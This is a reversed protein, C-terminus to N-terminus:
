NKILIEINVFYINYIYMFDFLLVSLFHFIDFTRIGLPRITAVIHITWKQYILDCLLLKFIVDHDYM